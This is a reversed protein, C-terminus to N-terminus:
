FIWRTAAFTPPLKIKKSLVPLGASGKSVVSPVRLNQPVGTSFCQQLIRYCTVALGLSYSNQSMQLALFVMVWDSLIILCVACWYYWTTQCAVAFLKWICWMSKHNSAIFPDSFSLDILGSVSLIHAVSTWLSFFFSICLFVHFMCEITM